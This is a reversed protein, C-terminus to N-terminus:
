AHQLPCERERLALFKWRQRTLRVHLWRLEHASNDRSACLLSGVVSRSRRGQPDCGDGEKREIREWDIQGKGGVEWGEGGRKWGRGGRGSREVTLEGEVRRAEVAALGPKGGGGESEGVAM